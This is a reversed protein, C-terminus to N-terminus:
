AMTPGARRRSTSTAASESRVGTTIIDQQHSRARRRDRLRSIPGTKSRVTSVPDEAGIVDILTLVTVAISLHLPMGAGLHSALNEALKPAARSQLYAPLQTM